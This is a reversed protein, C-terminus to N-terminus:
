EAADSLNVKEGLEAMLTELGRDIDDGLVEKYRIIGDGDILYVTPWGEVNWQSSIPGSTGKPGNWFHRWSLSESRVADVATDKNRDSNVGLLVFPKDALIRAVDQEHDYM